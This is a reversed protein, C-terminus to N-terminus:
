AAIRYVRGRKEDKVSEIKATGKSNQTSVWGRLSHPQWGLVEQLEEATAGSKRSMLRIAEASKAGRSSSAAKPATKKAEMKKKKPTTKKMTEETATEATPALRQIAKWVAVLGYPRNRFMKVPKLDAFPGATGAFGNWLDTVSQKSWGRESAIVCLEESSAFPTGDGGFQINNEPDITFM